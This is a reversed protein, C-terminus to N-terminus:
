IDFVHMVMLFFSFWQLHVLLCKKQAILEVVEEVRRWEEAARDPESSVPTSSSKFKRLSRTTVTTLMFAFM